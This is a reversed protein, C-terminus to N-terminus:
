PKVLPEKPYYQAAVTDEYPYTAPIWMRGWLNQSKLEMKIEEVRRFYEEKTYKVNLIEYEAHNRCICGFCDHSNFVHECYYLNQSFWSSNCCILGYSGTSGVINYCEETMTSAINDIDMCNRVQNAHTSGYIVDEANKLRFCYLLNKCNRLEAGLCNECNKQFVARQPIKERLDELMKLLEKTSNAKLMFQKQKEFDEKSFPKNIICYSQNQMCSCLFCNQCNALDCCFDCNYCNILYAGYNCNYCKESFVLEYCLESADTDLCDVCSTLKTCYQAYYVDESYHVGSVLYCNRDFSSYNAYASNECNTTILTPRFRSLQLQIFNDIFPM